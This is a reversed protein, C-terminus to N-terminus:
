CCCSCALLLLFVGGAKLRRADPRSAIDADATTRPNSVPRDPDTM